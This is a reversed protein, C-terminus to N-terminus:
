LAAGMAARIMDLNKRWSDGRHLAYDDMQEIEIVPAANMFQDFDDDCWPPVWAGSRCLFITDFSVGMPKGNDYVADLGIWDPLDDAMQVANGHWQPMRWHLKAGRMLHKFMWNECTIDEHTDDWAVVERQTKFKYLDHHADFLYVNEFPDGDQDYLLGAYANSDAVYLKTSDEFTFRDWFNSPVDVTPLEMGAREFGLAREPWIINGEIFFPSESHGWDYLWHEGEKYDGGEMPNRFFFDWDVALLNGM